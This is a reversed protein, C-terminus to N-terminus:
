ILTRSKNTSDHFLVKLTTSHINPVLFVSKFSFIFTYLSPFLNRWFSWAICFRVDVLCFCSNLHWHRGYDCGTKRISSFSNILCVSSSPSLRYSWIFLLSLFVVLDALSFFIYSTPCSLSSICGHITCTELYFGSRDLPVSPTCEARLTM